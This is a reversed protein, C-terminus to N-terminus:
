PAEEFALFRAPNAVLMTRIAPEEVGRGRLVEPLGSLLWALGPSGGLTAWM